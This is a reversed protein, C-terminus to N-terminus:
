AMVSRHDLTYAAEGTVYDEKLDLCLMEHANRSNLWSKLVSAASWM